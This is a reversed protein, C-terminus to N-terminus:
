GKFIRSLLSKKAYVSPGAPTDVPLPLGEHTGTQRAFPVAFKADGLRYPALYPNDAPIRRRNFDQLWWGDGTPDFTKVGTRRFVATTAVLKVFEFMPDENIFDALRGITAIHVDDVILLSGEKLHPYFYYYELDPFPFGHPGDILVVDYKQYKKYKPMSIQTPGLVLEINKPKTVPCSQFYKISSEKDKRDDLCFVTHHASINSFLITSKGCGTEASAKVKKPMLKELQILVSSPFAGANHSKNSLGHADIKDVISMTEGTKQNSKKRDYEIKLASVKAQVKNKGRSSTGGLFGMKEYEARRSPHFWSGNTELNDALGEYIKDGEHIAYLYGCKELLAVVEPTRRGNEAFIFPRDRLIIKQAGAIVQPEYGEVDIKIAAIKDTSVTFKEAALLDDLTFCKMVTKYFQFKYSDAEPIEIGLLGTVMTAHWEKFLNGDISNFGFIPKGNVVPGYLTATGAKDAIAAIRYDYGVSDIEKLRQLGPRHIELAEFSLIPCTMGTHRMSLAMYGWHAGVDLITGQKANFRTFVRADEELIEKARHIKEMYPGYGDLKFESADFLDDARLKNNALRSYVESIAAKLKEASM